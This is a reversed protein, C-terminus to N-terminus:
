FLEQSILPPTHHMSVMKVSVQIIAKRAYRRFTELVSPVTTPLADLCLMYLLSIARDSTLSQISYASRLCVLRLESDKTREGM